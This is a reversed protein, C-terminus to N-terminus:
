PQPSQPPPEPYQECGGLDWKKGLPGEHRKKSPFPEFFTEGSGLVQFLFCSCHQPLPGWAVTQTGPGLDQSALEM